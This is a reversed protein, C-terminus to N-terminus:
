SGYQMRLREAWAQRTARQDQGHVQQFAKDVSGTEGMTRLLEVMGGM